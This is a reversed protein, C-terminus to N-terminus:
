PLVLAPVEPEPKRGMVTVVQYPGGNQPVYTDIVLGATHIVARGTISVKARDIMQEILQASLFMRLPHSPGGVLKKSMLTWDPSQLAATPDEFVEASAPADPMLLVPTEPAPLQGSLTFQQFCHGNGERLTCVYFGVHEIKARLTASRTAAHLLLGLIKLSVIFRTDQGSNPGGIVTRHAHRDRGPHQILTDQETVPAPPQLFPLPPLETSM